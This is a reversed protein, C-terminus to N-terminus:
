KNNNLQKFHCPKLNPQFVSVYHHLVLAKTKLVLGRAYNKGRVRFACPALFDSFGAGLWIHHWNWVSGPVLSARCFDVDDGLQNPLKLWKRTKKKKKEFCRSQFLFFNWSKLNGYFKKCAWCFEKGLRAHRVNWNGVFGLDFARKEEKSLSISM